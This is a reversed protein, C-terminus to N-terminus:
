FDAEFEEMSNVEKIQASSKALASSCFLAIAATQALSNSFLM